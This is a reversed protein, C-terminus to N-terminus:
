RAKVEATCWTSVRAYSRRPTAIARFGSRVMRRESAAIESALRPRSLSRETPSAIASHTGPALEYWSCRRAISAAKPEKSWASASSSGRAGCRASLASTSRSAASRWSATACSETVIPAPVAACRVYANASRHARGSGSRGVM